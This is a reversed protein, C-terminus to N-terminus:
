LIKSKFYYSRKMRRGNIWRFCIQIEASSRHCHMPNEIHESAEKIQMKFSPCFHEEKEHYPLLKAKMTNAM